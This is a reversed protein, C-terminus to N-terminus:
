PQIEASGARAVTYEILPAAFNLIEKRERVVPAAGVVPIVKREPTERETTENRRGDCIPQSRPMEDQRSGRDSTIRDSIHRLVRQDYMAFFVVDHWQLFQQIPRPRLRKWHGHKGARAMKKMAVQHYQLSHDFLM